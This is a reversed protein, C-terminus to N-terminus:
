MADTGYINHEIYARMYPIKWWFLKNHPGLYYYQNPGEFFFYYQNPQRQRRVGSTGIASVRFRYLVSVSICTPSKQITRDNLNFGTHIKAAWLVSVYSSQRRMRPEPSTNVLELQRSVSVRWSKEPDDSREVTFRL